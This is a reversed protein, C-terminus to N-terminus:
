FPLSEPDVEEEEMQEGVENAVKSSSANEKSWAEDKIRQRETLLFVSGDKTQRMGIRFKLGTRLGKGEIQELDHEEAEHVRHLIDGILSAGVEGDSTSFTYYQAIKPDGNEDKNRTYYSGYWHTSVGKLTNDDDDSELVGLEVDILVTGEEVASVFPHSHTKKAKIIDVKIIQVLCDIYQGGGSEQVETNLLDDLLQKKTKTAM